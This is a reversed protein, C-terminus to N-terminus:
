MLFAAVLLSRASFLYAVTLPQAEELPFTPPTLCAHLHLAPKSTGQVVLHLIRTTGPKELRGRGTWTLVAAMSMSTMAKRHQLCGELLSGNSMVSALDGGGPVHLLSGGAGLSKCGPKSMEQQVLLLHVAKQRLM